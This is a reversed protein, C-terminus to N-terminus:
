NHMQTRDNKIFKENIIGNDTYIRIIYLGNPLDKVNLTNKNTVNKKHRVLKGQINIIEIFLINSKFVLEIHIHNTAPNPYVHVSNTKIIYNKTGAPIGEENYAALGGDKTGIWKTGNESIAISLVTKDPLGSNSTNYVTWITGDFSVLGGYWTGIWKIGNEDITISKVYNDPLGSNSTNYVVWSTGDFAAVGDATGIWKTGNEDIALSRVSNSPLGSNSTFYVTWNTGDFVALGSYDTGIWKIGTEDIALSNVYNDPLGSNSSNYVMWNTGDFSALGGYWTGIWKTGNEDIALSNVYNDPLGSNSSNYVTWNTGDFTAMGGGLTGIWKTGNEDIALSRIVNSPLGSNACNYFTLISTTKDLQVLSGNTGIWMNDNEEALAYINDGNTYNLWQPNQANTYCTIGIIIILLLTLKKM